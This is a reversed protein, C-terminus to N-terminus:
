CTIFTNFTKKINVLKDLEIITEKQVKLCVKYDLTNFSKQQAFNAPFFPNIPTELYSLIEPPLKYYALM